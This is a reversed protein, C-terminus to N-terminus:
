AAGQNQQISQLSQMIQQIKGLDPNMPLQTNPNIGNQLFANNLQNSAMQQANPLYETFGKAGLLSMIHMFLGPLATGLQAALFQNSGIINMGQMLVETSALKSKPTFGDAVQFLLVAQRLMDIKVSYDKMTRQSVIDTDIGYQFINLKLIEKLPIFVQFELTLAPLRLRSDAGGMTDTWERVSKNGKQFEGQMPKNIGHLKESMGVISLADHMVGETGRADFPIQYYADSIKKDKTLSNTKTPIKAAPVPANVDSPSLVSTDYIARDSVARRAANFRINFLTSAATQFPISSEAISQTQYMLGDELPQGFLIPLYDYASYIRKAHVLITNNIFVLKWIQPTGAESGWLGFDKPLIRAYLTFKEFNGILGQTSSKKSGTIYNEWNINTTPRRALNYDSITPHIKYNANEATAITMAALLAEKTNFAEGRQSLKNLYRKLKVQSIIEIYGAYDGELSVSGPLVNRDWVTNYMDLRRLKTHETPTKNVKPQKSKNKPDPLSSALEYQEISDWDTELACANYKVGDRIFMLLQRAYGGITAHHDLLAEFTEAQERYKPSSVVPFIPNGSLFVDALYATVADVQSVVIPPTTSPLNFVGVPTTAADIGQGDTTSTDNDKYANYRAYAIDIAEMKAHFDNLRKHETIVDKAYGLLANQAEQTPVSITMAPTTM